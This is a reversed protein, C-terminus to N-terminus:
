VYLLNINARVVNTSKRGRTAAAAVAASKKKKKKAWGGEIM